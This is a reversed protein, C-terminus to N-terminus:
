EEHAHGGAGAPLNGGSEQQALAWEDLLRREWPAIGDRVRALTVHPSFSRRERPFGSRELLRETRGHLQRLQEHSDEIVAWVMRPVDRRRVVKVGSISVEFPRAGAAVHELVDLIVAKRQPPTEGFFKLTIHINSIPTWRVKAARTSVAGLREALDRRVSKPLAIALFLRDTEM